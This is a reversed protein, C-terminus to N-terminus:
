ADEEDLCGCVREGKSLVRGCNLCWLQGCHFCRGICINGVDPNNECDGTEPSGCNPCDGVMLRNVFQEATTTELFATQIESLAGPSMQAMAQRIAEEQEPAPPQMVQAECHCCATAEDPIENHCNLCLM